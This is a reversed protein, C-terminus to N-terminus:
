RYRCSQSRSLPVLQNNSLAAARMEYEARRRGCNIGLPFNTLPPNQLFLTEMGTRIPSITM